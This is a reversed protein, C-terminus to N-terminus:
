VEAKVKWFGTERAKIVRRSSKAFVQVSLAAMTKFWLSGQDECGYCVQQKTPSNHWCRALEGTVVLACWPYESM